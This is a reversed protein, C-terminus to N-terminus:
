KRRKYRKGVIQITSTTAIVQKDIGVFKLIINGSRENASHELYGFTGAKVADMVKILAKETRTNM